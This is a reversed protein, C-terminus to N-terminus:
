CYNPKITRDKIHTLDNSNFKMGKRENGNRLIYKKKYVLSLNKSVRVIVIDISNM